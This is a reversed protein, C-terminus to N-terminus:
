KEPTSQVEVQTNGTNFKLIGGTLLLLMSIFAMVMAVGLVIIVTSQNMTKNNGVYDSGARNGVHVDSKGATSLLTQEALQRASKTEETNQHLQRSIETIQATLNNFGSQTSQVLVLTTQLESFKKEMQVLEPSGKRDAFCIFGQQNGADPFRHINISAAVEEGSKKVYTKELYYSKKIGNIVAEVEGLDAGVDSSKTIDKPSRDRLESEAWGVLQCYASNCFVFRQHMDVFAIPHHHVECAMRWQEVPITDRSPMPSLESEGLRNPDHITFLERWSYM